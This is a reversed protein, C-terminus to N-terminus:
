RDIEMLVNVILHRLSRRIKLNMVLSAPPAACDDGCTLTPSHRSQFRIVVPGLGEAGRERSESELLLDLPSLVTNAKM